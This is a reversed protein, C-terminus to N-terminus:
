TNFGKKGLFKSLSVEGFEATPDDPHEEAAEVEAEALVAVAAAPVKDLWGCEMEDNTWGSDEELPGPIDEECAFPVFLLLLLETIFSCPRKDATVPEPEPDAATVPEPETPAAGSESELEFVFLAETESVSDCRSLSKDKGITLFM